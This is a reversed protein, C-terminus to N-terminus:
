PRHTEDATALHAPPNLPAPHLAQPHKPMLTCCVTCEFACAAQMRVTVHDDMLAMFAELDRANYAELQM